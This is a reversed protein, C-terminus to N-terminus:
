EFSASSKTAHQRCLSAFLRGVYAWSSCCGKRASSGVISTSIAPQTLFANANFFVSFSAAASWCREEEEEEAEDDAEDVRVSPQVDEFLIYVLSSHGVSRGEM